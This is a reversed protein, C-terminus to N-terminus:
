VLSVDAVVSLKGTQITTVQSNAETLEVDYVLVSIAPLTLTASPPITIVSKGHTPDTPSQSVQFVAVNDADTYGHKVTLVLTGDTIDHTSGDTNTVAVAVVSTDGRTMTLNVVAM